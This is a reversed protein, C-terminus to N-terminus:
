MPSTKGSFMLTAARKKQTPSPKGNGGGNKKGFNLRKKGHLLNYIINCVVGFGLGGRLRQCLVGLSSVGIAVVWGM